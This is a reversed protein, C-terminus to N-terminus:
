VGFPTELFSFLSYSKQIYQIVPVYTSKEKQEMYKEVYNSNNSKFSKMSAAKPLVKNKSNNIYFEKSKKPFQSIDYDDCEIIM